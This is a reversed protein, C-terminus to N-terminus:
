KQIKQATAPDPPRQKGVNKLRELLAVAARKANGHIGVDVRAFWGFADSREDVQVIKKGNELIRGFHTTWENLSAGVVVMVDSDALTGV